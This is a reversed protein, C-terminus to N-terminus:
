LALCTRGDSQCSSPPSSSFFCIFSAPSTHHCKLKRLIAQRDAFSLNEKDICYHRGPKTAAFWRRTANSPM